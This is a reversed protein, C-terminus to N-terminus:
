AHLPSTNSSIKADLVVFVFMADVIVASIRVDYRYCVSYNYGDAAVIAGTGDYYDFEWGAAPTYDTINIDDLGGDSFLCRCYQYAWGIVMVGVLDPHPNQSCWDLCYTDKTRPPLYDSAVYSYYQYSDDFCSGEGVWSFHKVLTSTPNLSATPANTPPSPTPVYTGSCLDSPPYSSEQCVVKKIWNYAHSVRSYVGPYEYRACGEGWSVVGIQIDDAPNTGPIILPGGSDGQCSDHGPDFACIMSPGIEEFYYCQDCDENSIVPLDVELLIDSLSGGETTTGWGMVRSTSNVSPFFDDHNLKIFKVDQTTAAELIVLAFDYAMTNDDYDPHIIAKTM